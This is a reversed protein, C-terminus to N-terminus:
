VWILWWDERGDGWPGPNTTFLFPLEWLAPIMLQGKQHTWHPASWAEWTLSAGILMEELMLGWLGMWLGSWSDKEEARLVANEGRNVGLISFLYFMHIWKAHVVLFIAYSCCLRTPLIAQHPLLFVPNCGKELEHRYPTMHAIWLVSEEGAPFDSAIM